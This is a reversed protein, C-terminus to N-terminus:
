NQQVHQLKKPISKTLMGEDDTLPLHEIVDRGWIAILNISIREFGMDWVGRRAFDYIDTADQELSELFSFHQQAALSWKGRNDKWPSCLANHIPTRYIATRNEDHLPLWRHNPYPANGTDLPFQFDDPGEWYPLQSARWTPKRLSTVNNNTINNPPTMEPLYPKVAGTRFHHYPLPAGNIVNASVLFSHDTSDWIKAYGKRQTEIQIKKYLPSTPVLKDLWDLDAQKETNPAWYVEDIWGGNVVLNRKIYCDLIEVRDPRGFFIVAVIKLDAPKTFSAKTPLFSSPTPSPFHSSTTALLRNNGTNESELTPPTRGREPNAFPSIPHRFTPLNYFAAFCLLLLFLSAFIISIKLSRRPLLCSATWCASILLLFENILSTSPAGAHNPQGFM